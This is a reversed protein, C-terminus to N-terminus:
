GIMSRPGSASSAARLGMRLVAQESARSELSQAPTETGCGKVRGRAVSRWSVPPAGEAQRTGRRQSPERRPVLPSECPRAGDSARWFSDSWNRRWGKGSQEMGFLIWSCGSAMQTRKSSTHALRRFRGGPGTSLIRPASARRDRPREDPRRALIRDWRPPASCLVASLSLLLRVGTVEEIVDPEPQDGAFAEPSRASM